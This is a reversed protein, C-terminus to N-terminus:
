RHAYHAHTAHVAEELKALASRKSKSLDAAGPTIFDRPTHPCAGHGEFVLIGAETVVIDGSRLTKDNLLQRSRPADKLMRGCFAPRVPSSGTAAEGGPEGNRRNPEYAIQPKRLREHFIPAYSVRSKIRSSQWHGLSRPPRRAMRPAIPQRVYADFGFLEDFFDARTPPACLVAGMLSGAFSALLLLRNGLVDCPM